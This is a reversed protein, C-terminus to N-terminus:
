TDERHTENLAVDHSKVEFREINGADNKVPTVTTEWTKDIHLDNALHGRFTAIAGRRAVSLAQQAATCETDRWLDLWSSAGRPFENDASDTDATFSLLKGQSDLTVTWKSFVNM